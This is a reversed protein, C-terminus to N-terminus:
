VVERGGLVWASADDASGPAYMGQLAVTYEERSICGDGDTDVRDFFGNSTEASEGAAIYLRALEERSISGNGDADIADFAADALPKLGNDYYHPDEAVGAQVLAVYEDCSVRGDGDTDASRIQDWWARYAARLRTHSPSSPDPAIVACMRDALSEFDAAELYGSGNADVVAFAARLNAEALPNSM